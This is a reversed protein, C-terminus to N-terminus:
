CRCASPESTAAPTSRSRSPSRCRWPSSGRPCPRVRAPRRRVRGAGPCRAWSRPGRRSPSRWGRPRGSRVMADLGAMWRGQPVVDVQHVLLLTVLGRQSAEGVAVVLPGLSGAAIAAARGAAPRGDEEVPGACVGLGVVVGVAAYVLGRFSAFLPDGAAVGGAVVVAAALALLAATALGYGVRRPEARAGAFATSGLTVALVPGVLLPGVLHVTGFTLAASRLVEADGSAAARSADFATIRGLMGTVALALLAGLLLRLPPFRRGQVLLAAHATGIVLAFGCAIAQWVVETGVSGVLDAVTV